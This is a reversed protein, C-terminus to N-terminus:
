DHCFLIFSSHMFPPKLPTPAAKSPMSLSENESQLSDLGRLAIFALIIAVCVYQFFRLVVAKALETVAFIINRLM